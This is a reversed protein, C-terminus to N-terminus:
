LDDSLDRYLPNLSNILDKKKKRSYKKVQKERELALFVDEFTEYYVLKDVNYKATFSDPNEKNKHQWARQSINNTVGTYFVNHRKNTAIYVFYYKTQMNSFVFNHHTKGLNRVGSRKM